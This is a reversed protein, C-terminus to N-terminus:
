KNEPLLNIYSFFIYIITNPYSKKLFFNNTDYYIKNLKKGKRKKYNNAKKYIYYILIVNHRILDWTM